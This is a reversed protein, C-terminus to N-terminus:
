DTGGGCSVFSKVTGTGAHGPNADYGANTSVIAYGVVKGSITSGSQVVSNAVLVPMEAPLPGAPPDSSNGTETTFPGCLPQDADLHAAFGKFSAPATVDAPAGAVALSNNKWWQAGWFTVGAGVSANGIGIVFAQDVGLTGGADRPGAGATGISVATSAILAVATVVIRPRHAGM